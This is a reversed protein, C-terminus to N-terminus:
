HIQQPRMQLPSQMDHPVKFDKRAIGRIADPPKGLGVRDSYDRVARRPQSSETLSRATVVDIATVGAVAGLAMAVNAKRPNSGSLNGVLTAIDLADGGVRGWVWATPDRSGLIGVGNVIERLGYLRLLGEQAQMGISRALSRAFLVEALGLGISFWGLANASKRAQLQRNLRRQYDM